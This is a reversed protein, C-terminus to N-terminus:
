RLSDRSFATKRFTPLTHPDKGLDAEWPAREEETPAESREDVTTEQGTWTRRLDGWGWLTEAGREETLIEKTCSEVMQGAPFPTQHTFESLIVLSVFAPPVREVVANVAAAWAGTSPKRHPPLSVPSPFPLSQQQFWIIYLLFDSIGVSSPLRLVVM